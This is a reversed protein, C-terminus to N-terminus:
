GAYCDQAPPRVWKRKIKDWVLTPLPSKQIAATDPCRTAGREALFRDIIGLEENRRVSLPFHRLGHEGFVAPDRRPSIAALHPLAVHERQSIVPSTPAVAPNDRGGAGDPAAGVLPRPGPEPPPPEIGAVVYGRGWRAEIRLPLLRRLKTILVRVATSQARDSREEGYLHRYLAQHSVLQGPTRALLELARWEMPTLRVPNGDVTIRRNEWDLRVGGRAQRGGPSLKVTMGLAAAWNQLADLGPAEIGREWDALSTEDLGSRRAVDAVKWGLTERQSRLDEILSANHSM